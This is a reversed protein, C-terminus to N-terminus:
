WSRCTLRHDVEGREVLLWRAEFGATPLQDVATPLEKRLAAVRCHFVSVGM